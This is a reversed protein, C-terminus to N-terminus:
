PTAGRPPDEPMVAPRGRQVISLALKLVEECEEHSPVYRAFKVLDCEELLREVEVNTVGPLPDARLRERLEGSTMEIADFGKSGGIYRRIVDSIADYYDKTLGRSLLDGRAIHELAEMAVLWPHRPPPPPPEVRPRRRWWATLGLTTVVVLFVGDLGLAFWRLRLADRRVDEPLTLDKPRPHPTNGFVSRVRFRVEPVCVRAIEDGTNVRAPQAALVVDAVRFPQVAVVVDSVVRDGDARRSRDREPQERAYELEQASQQYVVVDPDFEVRDSPRYRFRYTIRVRDGVQPQAPEVTATITPARDAPLPDSVCAGSPSRAVDVSADSVAADVAADQALASAPALCLALALCLAGMGTGEGAEPSPLLAARPARTWAASLRDIAPFIRQKARTDLRTSWKASLPEGGKERLPLLAPSSLLQGLARKM